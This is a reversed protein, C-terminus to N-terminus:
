GCFLLLYKKFIIECLGSNKKYIDVVKEMKQEFYIGM